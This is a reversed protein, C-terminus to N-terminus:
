RRLRRRAAATRRGSGAARPRAGEGVRELTRHATPRYGTLKGGAITVVGARGILIEDKRSIDTPPKGPEAVLPRLGAWATRVDAPTSSPTSSTARSRRWCTSSTPAARGAAVPERGAHLHHRHHRHVRDRRPAARLHRAPRRHQHAPPQAGAPARRPDRHARGEVPAPAGAGRSGRAPAAGRGVRGGRERRLGRARPDRPRDASVARHRRGRPRARDPDGTVEAWNLAKAGLGAAARLNALVLRADDTLYERYACAFRWESRDLAPEERELEAVGWNQHM